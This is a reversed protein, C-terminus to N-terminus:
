RTRRPRPRTKATRAAHFYPGHVTAGPYRASIAQAQQMARAGQQDGEYSIPDGAGVPAFSLTSRGTAEDVSVVIRDPRGDLRPGDQIM